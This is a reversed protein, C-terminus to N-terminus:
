EGVEALRKIEVLRPDLRIHRTEGTGEIQDVVLQAAHIGMESPSQDIYASPLMGGPVFGPEDFCILNIGSRGLQRLARGIYRMLHADVAAIAELDANGRLFETIEAPVDEPVIPESDEVIGSSVTLCRSGSVPPIGREVLASQFGFLREKVGETYTQPYTVLGIRRYNLSALYDGMLRGAKETDCFVRSAQYDSVYKEVFVLPFKHLILRIMDDHFYGGRTAVIILGDVPLGLLDRLAAAAEEESGGIRKFVLHYGQKGLQSEVGSILRAAYQFEMWPMIVGILRKSASSPVGASLSLSSSSSSSSSPSPSPKGHLVKVVSAAQKTPTGSESVFTGKGRMRYLYGQTVLGLIANKATIRSVQFQEALLREAPIQTHPGWAASEIQGLIYNQIQAYLPILKTSM